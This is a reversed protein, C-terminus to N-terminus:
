GRRSTGEERTLCARCACGAPSVSATAAQHMSAAATLSGVCARLEQAQHTPPLADRLGMHLAQARGGARRVERALVDVLAQFERARAASVEREHVLLQQAARYSASCTDASARLM